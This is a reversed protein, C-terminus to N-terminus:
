ITFPSTSGGRWVEFGQHCVLMWSRREYGPVLPGHGEGRAVNYTCRLAEAVDAYFRVIAPHDMAMWMPRGLFLGDDPDMFARPPAGKVNAGMGSGHDTHLRRGALGQQGIQEVMRGLRLEDISM